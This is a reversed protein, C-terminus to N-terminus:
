NESIEQAKQFIEQFERMADFGVGLEELGRRLLAPDLKPAAEKLLELGLRLGELSDAFRVKGEELVAGHLEPIDAPPAKLSELQRHVTLLRGEFAELHKILVTNDNSGLAENISRELRLFEEPVTVSDQDVTEKIVITSQAGETTDADFRPLVAQCSSCLRAEAVNTAGCRFCTKTSPELDAQRLAQYIEVLHEAAVKLVELAEKVADDSRRELALDLDEIGQLQISLAEELDTQRIKFLNAEADSPHTEEFRHELREHYHCFADLREQVALLPLKGKLYHHAVRLLEQTFPVESYQPGERAQSRMDGFSRFLDQVSTKLGRATDSASEWDNVALDNRLSGVLPRVSAFDIAIQNAGKNQPEDHALFQLEDLYIGYLSGLIQDLESFSAQLRQGYAGQELLEIIEDVQPIESPSLASVGLAHTQDLMNTFM